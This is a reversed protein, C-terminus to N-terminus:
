VSPPAVVGYGMGLRAQPHIKAYSRRISLSLFSVYGRLQM